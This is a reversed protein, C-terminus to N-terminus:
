NRKDAHSTQCTTTNVQHFLESQAGREPDTPGTTGGRARPRPPGPEGTGPVARPGPTDIVSLPEDAHPDSPYEDAKFYLRDKHTEGRHMPISDSNTNM